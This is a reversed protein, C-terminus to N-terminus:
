TRADTIPYINFINEEGRKHSGIDAGGRERERERERPM